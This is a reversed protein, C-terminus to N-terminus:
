DILKGLMIKNHPLFVSIIDGENCSRNSEYFPLFKRFNIRSEFNLTFFRELDRARYLYFFISITILEMTEHLLSILELSTFHSLGLRLITPEIYFYLFFEGIFYLMMITFFWLFLNKKRLVVHILSDIQNERILEVQNYLINITNIGYCLAHLLVTFYLLFTAKIMERGIINSTCDLIYILIILVGLYNFEKKEIDTLVLSLGKSLILLYAFFITEYLSKTQKQFLELIDYNM